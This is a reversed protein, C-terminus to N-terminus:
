GEIHEMTQLDYPTAQYVFYNLWNSFLLHAHSRWTNRPPLTPDDAPFYHKPLAIPLGKNKDRFYEAALTGADYESHGTVFFLRRKKSAVIYVGAEVSESLIEVKPCRLIDERRVETHRSHPAQFVEDFGRLLPHAPQLPVHSFVGFMKEKLEHKPIGYHYWLGAQAAWCIHLTSFVNTKSWAMIECLEDWYDVETFDLNEVPAGTIILGDFRENRVDDFTRYFAEMHEASTNTSQHTATKLLTLEIQLPTNSLLRIIQTETTIKTPMLNLIALKLPRIDQQMARNEDMVFINEAQLIDGAPLGAPIKIPM